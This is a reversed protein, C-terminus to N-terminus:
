EANPSFLGLTRGIVVTFHLNGEKLSVHPFIQDDIQTLIDPISEEPLKKEDLIILTGDVTGNPLYHVDLAAVDSGAANLLFRESNPTRLTRLIEFNVM